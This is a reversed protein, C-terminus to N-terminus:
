YLQIFRNLEPSGSASHPIVVYLSDKSRVFSPVRLNPNRDAEAPEPAVRNGHTHFIAITHETVTLSLHNANVGENASNTKYAIKIKGGEYQISFGAEASGAGAQGNATAMFAEDSAKKVIPNESLPHGPNSPDEPGYKEYNYQQQTQAEGDANEIYSSLWIEEIATLRLDHEGMGMHLESPSWNPMEQALPVPRSTPRDQSELGTPDVFRLPNNLVYGYADFGQASTLRPLASLPDPTLFRGLDPRLQRANFYDLGTEVDREQGTFLKRDKPPSQPSYEEGFPLFDHRAIVQGLEDTVARVSGLADLHYYEVAVAAPPEPPPFDDTLGGGGEEPGALEDPPNASEPAGAVDAPASEPRPGSSTAGCAPGAPGRAMGLFVDWIPVRRGNTLRVTARYRFYNGFGDRRAVAQYSLDIAQVGAAALTTLEDPQSVGDRNRDTWLRLQAFVPDRHDIVGDGNADYAALTQFSNEPASPARSHWPGSVAQGLMEAADDITGNGNLDLVLFAAGTGRRPWAVQEPVGDGDGDFGAGGSARTLRIPGGDLALLLPDLWFQECTCTEYNYRNGDARCARAEDENCSPPALEFTATCSRAQDMSVTGTGCGTGSWGVFTVGNPPDVTLTVSTGQDYSAACTGGCNITGPDSTVTGGGSGAKSVTLAASGVFTATCTRPGNMTVAGDACDADGSWGAFLSGAAATATLTVPTGTAYTAYTTACTGGCDLGSPSATVTGAGSGARAVTLTQTASGDVTVSTSASGGCAGQGTATVTAAGVDTWTHTFTAPLSTIPSTVVTQDGFDLQLAGCPNVGTVTVTAAQGQTVPSSVSVADVHGIVTITVPPSSTQHGATDTMRATLTYSGAAVNTWAYTYPSATATGLLTTGQHFDMRAVSASGAVAATLTVTAPALLRAGFTPSTLAVVAPRMAALLRGGAYVYDVTWKLTGGEVAFESLGNVVYTRSTDSGTIKVVRQADANYRYTQLVGANMTATGLLGGGTYTYSGRGDQTLRGADDYDFGEVQGGSTATLQNTSSSYTYTTTTSGHTQQTRNGIADYDYTLAGWPGTATELRDLVDYSYAASMSTTLADAIGTM